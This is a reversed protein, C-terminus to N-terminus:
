RLEPIDLILRTLDNSIYVLRYLKENHISFLTQLLNSLSDYYAIDGANNNNNANHIFQEHTLGNLLKSTKDGLVKTMNNVVDLCKKLITELNDFHSIVDDFNMEEFKNKNTFDDCAQKARNCIEDVDKSKSMADLKPKLADVDGVSSIDTINLSNIFDFYENVSKMMDTIINKFGCVVKISDVSGLKSKIFKIGKNIKERIPKLLEKLREIARKFLNILKSLLSAKNSKSSQTKDDAEMIVSEQFIDFADVDTNDDCYELVAVAKGYSDMLSNIVNMESQIIANDINDISSLIEYNLKNM